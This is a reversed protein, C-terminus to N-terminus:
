RDEEKIEDKLILQELDYEFKCGLANHQTREDKEIVVYIPYRSGPYFGRTANNLGVVKGEMDTHKICVTKDKNKEFWEIAEQSPGGEVVKNVSKYLDAIQEVDEETKAMGLAELFIGDM